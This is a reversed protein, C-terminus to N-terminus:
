PSPRTVADGDPPAPPMEHQGAYSAGIVQRRIGSAQHRGALMEGLAARFAPTPSIVPLARRVQKGTVGLECGPADRHRPQRM